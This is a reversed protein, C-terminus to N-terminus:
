ESEELIEKAIDAADEIQAHVRAHAREESTIPEKDKKTKGLAKKDLKQKKSSKSTVVLDIDEDSDINFKPDKHKLAQLKKFDDEEKEIVIDGANDQTLDLIESIDYFNEDILGAEVMEEHERMTERTKLKENMIISIVSAIPASLIMGAVGFVAGGIILALFIILARTNMRKSMILAPMITSIIAWEVISFIFASFFIDLSGQMLTFMLLPVAAIFGGIYPIISLVGLILAMMFAYPVGMIAYGILAIVFVTFCVILTSVVYQDMAEKTRRTISLLEEAKARSYYAFVYRRGTKAIVEKDKLLFFSILIGMIFSFLVSVIGFVNEINISAILTNLYGSIADVVTNAVGTATEGSVGFVGVVQIIFKKLETIVRELEAPDSFQQVMSVISPVALAVIGVIAGITVLYLFTLSIARKYKKANRSGVFSNKMLKNEILNMPKLFLYSIVMAIIVPTLGALLSGFLQAITNSALSWLILAALLVIFIWVYWKRMKGGGGRTEQIDFLPNKDM